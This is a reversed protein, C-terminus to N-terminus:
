GPKSKGLYSSLPTATRINAKGPNLLDYVVANELVRQVYNRTESLPIAEIWSLVDSGPNRPDGNAALWKNVNGPGANYACVALVYSGGFRDM